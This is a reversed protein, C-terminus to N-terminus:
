WTACAAGRARAAGLARAANPPPQFQKALREYDELPIDEDGMVWAERGLISYLGWHIFMGFKAERWWQIRRDHDPPLVIGDAQTSPAGRCATLNVCRALLRAPSCRRKLYERRSPKM